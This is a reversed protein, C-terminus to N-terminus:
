RHRECCYYYIIIIIQVCHRNITGHATAETRRWYFVRQVVKVKIPLRARHMASISQISREYKLGGAATLVDIETHEM